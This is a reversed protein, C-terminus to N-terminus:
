ANTFPAGQGTQVYQRLSALYTDWGVTCMEICDLEATLGHHRFHLECADHDIPEITFTPQTGLWDPLFRCETVTWTVQTPHQAQDVTMVCADVSSDFYFRLEGGANGSGTARTWWSSLGSVQTLAHFVTDASASLRLTKTYDTTENQYTTM